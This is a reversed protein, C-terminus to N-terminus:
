FFSIFLVIFLLSIFLTVYLTYDQIYCFRDEICCMGHFSSDREVCLISYEIVFSKM